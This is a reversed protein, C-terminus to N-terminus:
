QWAREVVLIAMGLRRRPAPGCSGATARPLSLGAAPEDLLIVSADCLAVHWGVNGYLACM